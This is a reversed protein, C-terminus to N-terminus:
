GTSNPADECVLVKVVSFDTEAHYVAVVAADILAKRQQSLKPLATDL